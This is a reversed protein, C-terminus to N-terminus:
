ADNVFIRIVFIITSRKGAVDGTQVLRSFYSTYQPHPLKKKEGKQGRLHYNVLKNVGQLILINLEIIQLVIKFLLSSLARATLDTM